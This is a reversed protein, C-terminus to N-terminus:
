NGNLDDIATLNTCDYNKTVTIIITRLVYKSRRHQCKMMMKLVERWAREKQLTCLTCTCISFTVIQFVLVEQVHNVRCFSILNDCSNMCTIGCYLKSVQYWIRRGQHDKVSSMGPQMYCRLWRSFADHDWKSTNGDSLVVSPSRVHM